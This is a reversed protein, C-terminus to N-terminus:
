GLGKSQVNNAKTWLGLESKLPKGLGSPLGFKKGNWRIVRWWITEKIMEIQAAEMIMSGENTAVAQQLQAEDIAVPAEGARKDALGAIAGGLAGGIGVGIAQAWASGQKSCVFYLRGPALFLHGHLKKMGLQLTLPYPTLQM